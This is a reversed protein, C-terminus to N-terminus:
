VSITSARVRSCRAPSKAPPSTSFTRAMAKTSPAASRGSGISIRDIGAGFTVNGTITGTGGTPLTLRNNGGPDDIGAPATRSDCLYNDDSATPLLNCDALAPTAYGFALLIATTILPRGSAPRPLRTGIMMHM